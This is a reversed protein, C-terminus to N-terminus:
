GLEAELTKLEERLLTIQTNYYDLWTEGTQSDKIENECVARIRKSDLEELEIKIKEIKLQLQKQHLIKEYNPNEIIKNDQYIYKDPNLIFDDYVSKSVEINLTDDDICQAEGLGNIVGNKVFVYYM